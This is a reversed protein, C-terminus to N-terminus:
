RRGHWYGPRQRQHMVALVRICDSEIRYIVSYPFRDMHRWRAGKSRQGARAWAQPQTEILALSRLFEVSFDAGLQPGIASYHDIAGAVEDLAPEVIELRM